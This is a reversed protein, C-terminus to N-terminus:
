ENLVRKLNTAMDLVGEIYALQMVAEKADEGSMDWVAESAAGILLIANHNISNIDIKM